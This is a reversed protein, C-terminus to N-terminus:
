LEPETYSNKNTIVSLKENGILKTAYAKAEADGHHRGERDERQQLQATAHFSTSLLLWARSGSDFSRGCLLSSANTNEFGRSLARDGPAVYCRLAIIANHAIASFVGYHFIGQHRVTCPQQRCPFIDHSSSHFRSM